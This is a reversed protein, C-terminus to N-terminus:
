RKMSYVKLNAFDVWEVGRNSARPISLTSVSRRKKGRNLFRPKAGDFTDFREENMMREKNKIQVGFELSM